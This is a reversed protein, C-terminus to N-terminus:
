PMVVPCRKRGIEFRRFCYSAQNIGGIGNLSKIALQSLRCFGLGYKRRIIIQQFHQIQCRHIDCIISRVTDPSSVSESGTLSKNQPVDPLFHGTFFLWFVAPQLNTVSTLQRGNEWEFGMGNYYSLPNRINDYTIQKGDCATM